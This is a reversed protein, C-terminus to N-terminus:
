AKIFVVGDSDAYVKDGSAVSINGITVAEGAQGVRNKKGEGKKPVHGIAHIGLNLAALGDVDRVSGLVIIGEWKNEVAMAGVNAGFSAHKTSSGADIVLVKGEGISSEIMEKVWTNDDNCKMTVAYGCYQKKAGYSQWMIGDPVLAKDGFEDCVDSTPTNVLPEPAVFELSM